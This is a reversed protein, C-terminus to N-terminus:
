RSHRGRPRRRMVFYVGAGAALVVMIIYPTITHTLGNPVEVNKTNTFAITTNGTLTGTASNGDKDEGNDVKYKATYEGNDETVTYTYGAPISITVSDGHKMSFTYASNNASLTETTGNNKSYSLNATYADDNKTLMLTFEFEKNTDGMNGTVTKTITLNRSTYEYANTIKTEETEGASVTVTPSSNTENGVYQVTSTAGGHIKTEEVIYRGPLLDQFTYSGATFEAYTVSKLSNGTKNGSEDAKYLSFTASFGEPEAIATNGIAFSKTVTVQGSRAENHVVVTKQEDASYSSSQVAGDSDAVGFTRDDNFSVNYNETHLEKVYYTANAPINSFTAKEDAKLKFTGDKGTTHTVGNVTYSTNAKETGDVFLQMTYEQESALVRNLNKVEKVVNISDTPITQLNFKVRLNSAGAGREMYFMQMTHSSYNAFTDGVFDAAVGAVGAAEFLAKLTTEKYNDYNDGSKTQYRVVGTNFNISGSLADHIGGLDLVLVGDIYVWMDDDGTFEFVMDKGNVQGNKPQLFDTKLYMGFQFENKEKFGYLPENYRSDATTLANGLYDYLNRNRIVSSDLHNYPMFNGRKYYFKDENSPTGLQKYVTFKNGNLEAFNDASSYYFYGEENYVSELFLHNVTTGNKFKEGLSGIPQGSDYKYMTPFEEDDAITKSLLGPKRGGDGYSDGFAFDGDEFNYMRMQVGKSTSDITAVEELNEGYVLYISSNNFNYSNDDSGNKYQWKSSKYRIQTFATGDAAGVHASGYTYGDIAPAYDAIDTWKTTATAKPPDIKSTKDDPIPNGKADVCYVTITKTADNIYTITFTSFSDVTFDANVKQDQVTVTGETADGADAVMEVKSSDPLHQVALSDTDADEPLLGAGLEFQVDVSGSPEVEQGNVEFGVDLALLGDYAIENADLQDAAEQYQSDTDEFQKVVLTAGEPLVGAEATTRVKVTKDGSGVTMTQDFAEGASAAEGQEEEGAVPESDAEEPVDEEEQAPEDAPEEQATSADADAPEEVEETVSPAPDAGEESSASLAMGSTVSVALGIALLLALIRKVKKRM